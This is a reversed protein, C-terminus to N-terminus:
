GEQVRRVESLFRDTHKMFLDGHDCGKYIKVASNPFKGQVFPANEIKEKEMEGYWLELRTHVEEQHPPLTFTFYAYIEDQLTRIPMSMLKEVMMAANKEGWDKAQQKIIRKKFPRMFRYMGVSRRHKLAKKEDVVPSIYGADAIAFPCSVERQALMSFVVNAGYSIGLLCQLQINQEKIYGAIQKANYEIGRANQEGNYGDLSPVIVYYEEELEKMCPEFIQWPCGWGHILVIAKNQKDGATHFQVM